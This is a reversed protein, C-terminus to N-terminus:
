NQRRKLNSGSLSTRTSRETITPIVYWAISVCMIALTRGYVALFVLILMIAVPLYLMPKMKWTFGRSLMKKESDGTERVQNSKTSRVVTSQVTRKESSDKYTASEAKASCDGCIAHKKKNNKSKKVIPVIVPKKNKKKTKVIIPKVRNSSSFAFRIFSIQESGMRTYIKQKMVHLDVLLASFKDLGRNSYPNNLAAMKSSRKTSPCPSLDDVEDEDSLFHSSGGNCLNLM